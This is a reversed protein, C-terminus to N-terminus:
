KIFKKSMKAQIISSSLMILLFVGIWVKTLSPFFYDLGGIVVGIIGLILNFKGNFAIYGNIDKANSREVNKRLGKSFLVLVGFIIYVISAIEIIITTLKM